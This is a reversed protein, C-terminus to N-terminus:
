VRLIDSAQVGPLTLNPIAKLSLGEERLQSSAAASRQVIAARKVRAKMRSFPTLTGKASSHHYALSTFDTPDPRAEKISKQDGFLSCRMTIGLSSNEV